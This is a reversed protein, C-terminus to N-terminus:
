IALWQRFIYLLSTAWSWIAGLAGLHGLPWGTECIVHWKDQHKPFPKVDRLFSDSRDASAGEISGPWPFNSLILLKPEKLCCQWTEGTSYGEQDLMAFDGSSFVGTIPYCMEITRQKIGDWFSEDISLWCRMHPISEVHRFQTQFWWGLGKRRVNFVERFGAQTNWRKTKPSRIYRPCKINTPHSQYRTSDIQLNVWKTLPENM